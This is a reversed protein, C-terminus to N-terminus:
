SVTAQVSFSPASLVFFLFPSDPLTISWLLASRSQTTGDVIHITRAFEGFMFCCNEHKTIRVRAEVCAQSCRPSNWQVYVAGGGTLLRHGASWDGVTRAKLSQVKRCQSLMKM